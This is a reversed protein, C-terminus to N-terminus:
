CQVFGRQRRVPIRFEILTSLSPCSCLLKNGGKKSREGMCMGACLVIANPTASSVMVFDFSSVPHVDRVHIILCIGLEDVVSITHGSRADM